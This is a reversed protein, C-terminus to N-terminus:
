YVVRISEPRYQEPTNDAIRYLCQVTFFNQKMIFACVPFPFRDTSETLFFCIESFSSLTDSAIIYFPSLTRHFSLRYKTRSQQACGNKQRAAASLGFAGSLARSRGANLLYRRASHRFHIRACRVSSVSSPAPLLVTLSVPPLQSPRLSLPLGLCYVPNLPFGPRCRLLEPPPSLGPLLPEEM